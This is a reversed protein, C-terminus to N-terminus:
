YTIYFLIAYLVCEGQGMTRLPVILPLTPDLTPIGSEIESPDHSIMTSHPNTM